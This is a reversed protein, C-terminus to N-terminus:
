CMCLLLGGTCLFKRKVIFSTERTGIEKSAGNRQTFIIFVTSQLRGRWCTWEKQKVVNSVSHSPACQWCGTLFKWSANQLAHKTFHASEEGDDSSLVNASLVHPGLNGVAGRQTGPMAESMLLILLNCHLYKYYNSAKLLPKQYTVWNWM